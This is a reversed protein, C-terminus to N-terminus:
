FINTQQYRQGNTLGSNAIGNINNQEKYGDYFDAFQINRQLHAQSAELLKEEYIDSKFGTRRLINQKDKTRKRVARKYEERAKEIDSKIHKYDFFWSLIKEFLGLSKQKDVLENIKTEAQKINQENNNNVVNALFKDYENQNKFSNHLFDVYDNFNNCQQMQEGNGNKMQINNDQLIKQMDENIMNQFSQFDTINYDKLIGILEAMDQKNNIQKIDECNCFNCIKKFEDYSIFGKIQEFLWEGDNMPKVDPTGKKHQQEKFMQKQVDQGNLTQFESTQESNSNSKDTPVFINANAVEKEAKKANKIKNLIEKKQAELFEKTKIDNREQEEKKMRQLEEIKTQTEIINKKVTENKDKLDKVQQKTALIQNSINQAKQTYEDLIEQITKKGRVFDVLRNAGYWLKKPLNWFPVSNREENEKRVQELMARNEEEEKQLSVLTKELEQIETIDQQSQQRKYELLQQSLVLIEKNINIITNKTDSKM